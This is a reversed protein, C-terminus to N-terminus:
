NFSASTLLLQHKNSDAPDERRKLVEELQNLSLFDGKESSEQCDPNTPSVQYNIM